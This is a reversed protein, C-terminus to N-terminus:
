DLDTAIAKYFDKKLNKYNQFSRSKLKFSNGSKRRPNQLQRLAVAYSTNQAM